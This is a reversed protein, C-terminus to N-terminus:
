SCLHQHGSSDSKGTCNRARCACKAYVAQDERDAACFPSRVEDDDELYDGSYSFCLEEFPEIDRRTFVTLLPKDLNSENVYCPVLRCNPDCSHNNGAHYADVTYQVEWGDKGEKLHHFDLDFLYTRGFKNYKFGREEGVADTLLEGAYIGVFNGQYIKKPGAFVGWGKEETKKINVSCKRGHQVVRNRCEEDCGCLDNCEFIPYDILKLRGKADYAFDAEGTYHQQRKLCACTKSKPDCKGTCGCSTLRSVDPPPVGEGHWMKNSYHFEWPPTPDDDVDNIIEILPADPEDDATNEQIYCELVTRLGPFRQAIPSWCNIHDQLSHPLNKALYCKQTFNNVDQRFTKWNLSPFGGFTKTAVVKSSDYPSSSRTKPPTEFEGDFLHIPDNSSTSSQRSSRHLNASTSESVPIPQGSSSSVNM